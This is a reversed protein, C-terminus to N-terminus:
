GGRLLGRVIGKTMGRFIAHVCHRVKLPATADVVEEQMAWEICNLAATKADDATADNAGFTGDQLLSPLVVPAPRPAPPAARGALLWVLLVASALKAM